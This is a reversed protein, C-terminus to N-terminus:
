FKGSLRWEVVTGLVKADKKIETSIQILYKDIIKENTNPLKDIFFACLIPKDFNKAEFNGRIM